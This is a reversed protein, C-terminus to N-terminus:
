PRLPSEEHNGKGGDSGKAIIVLLLCVAFLLGRHVLDGGEFGEGLRVGGEGLEGLSGSM